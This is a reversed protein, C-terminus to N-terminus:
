VEEFAQGPTLSEEPGGCGDEVTLTGSKVVNFAYGPHYHWGLTEGPKVTLTRVTVTAPGDFLGSHPITGAALIQTVVAYATAGLLITGLCIAIMLGKRLKRVKMDSRRIENARPRRRTM